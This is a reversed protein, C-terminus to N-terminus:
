FFCNVKEGVGDFTYFPLMAIVSGELMDGNGCVAHEIDCLQKCEGFVCRNGAPSTFFNEVLLQDECIKEIETTM